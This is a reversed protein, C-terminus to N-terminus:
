PSRRGRRGRRRARALRQAGTEFVYAEPLKPDEGGKLYHRFFPLEIKEQFFTSTPSRRLARARAGRGHGRAWGGHSWPGM